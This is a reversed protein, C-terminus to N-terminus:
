APAVQKGEGEAARAAAIQGDCDLGGMRAHGDWPDFPLADLRLARLTENIRAYVQEVPVPVDSGHRLEASDNGNVLLALRGTEHAREAARIPVSVRFSWDDWVLTRELIGDGSGGLILPPTERLLGELLAKVRFPGEVDVWHNTRGTDEEMRNRLFAQALTPPEASDFLVASALRILDETKQRDRTGEPFDGM